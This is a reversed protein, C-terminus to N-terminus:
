PMKSDPMNCQLTQGAYRYEFTLVVNYWTGPADLPGPIFLGRWERYVNPVLEPDPSWNTITRVYKDSLTGADDWFVSGGWDMKDLNADGNDWQLSVQILYAPWTTNVNKFEVM